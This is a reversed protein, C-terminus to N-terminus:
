KLRRDVTIEAVQRIKDNVITQIAEGLQAAQARNYLCAMRIVAALEGAPDAYWDTVFQEHQNKVAIDVRIFSIEMEIARQREDEADLGRQYENEDERLQKTEPHTM